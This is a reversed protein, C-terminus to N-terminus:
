RGVVPIGLADALQNRAWRTQQNSTPGSSRYIRQARQRDQKVGSQAWHTAAVDMEDTFETQPLGVDVTM